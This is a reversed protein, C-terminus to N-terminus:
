LTDVYNDASWASGYRCAAWALALFVLNQIFERTISNGGGSGFCGCSTIPLGRLWAQGLMAEFFLLM